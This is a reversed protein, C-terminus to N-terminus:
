WHWFFEAWIVLVILLITLATHIGWGIWFPLALRRASLVALVFAPLECSGILLAFRRNAEVAALGAREDQFALNAIAFMLVLAAGGALTAVASRGHKRLAPSLAGLALGVICVMVM